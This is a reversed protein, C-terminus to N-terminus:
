DIADPVIEPGPTHRVGERDDLLDSVQQEDLPQVFKLGNLFALRHRQLSTFLADLKAIHDRNFNQRPRSLRLFARAIVLSMGPSSVLTMGPSSVPSPSGSPRLGKSPSVSGPRAMTGQSSRGDVGSRSASPARPPSASGRGAGYIDAAEHGHDAGTRTASTMVPTTVLTMVLPM